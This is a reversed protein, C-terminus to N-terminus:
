SRGKRALREHACEVPGVAFDPFGPDIEDRIPDDIPAMYGAHPWTDQEIVYSQHSFHGASIRTKPRCQGFTANNVDFINLDVRPRCAIVAQWILFAPPERVREAPVPILLMVVAVCVGDLSKTGHDVQIPRFNQSDIIIASSVDGHLIAIIGCAKTGSEAVIYFRQF